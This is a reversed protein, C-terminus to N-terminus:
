QKDEEPENKTKNLGYIGTSIGIIPVILLLYFLPALNPAALYFQFTFYIPILSSLLMITVYVNGFIEIAKKM